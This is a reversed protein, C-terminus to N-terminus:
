DDFTIRGPGHNKMYRRYAKYRPNEALSQKLEEDQEKKWEKFNNWDWLELQLYEEIKHEEIANFENQGLKMNKRMLYLKEEPGYEENCITFKWLWRIQWLIYKTVTYPSLLLQLWLIDLVKPKAYSGQIDLNEAIIEKIYREIEEKQEAKSMKKRDKDKRSKLKGDEKQQAIEMAKNRYKPVTAFYRIASQYREWAVYYQIASIITVTVLIVLKVDVKPSVRRRYYRYYHAYYEQPNDLMYDYDNRSEDDKLIEYATAVEKFIVEAERKKDEDPHMDPHYKRALQRYARSIEGRSSDRNVGLVDYCNKKGCYIGELLQGYCSSIIALVILLKLRQYM